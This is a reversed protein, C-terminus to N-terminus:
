IRELIYKLFSYCVRYSIWENILFTDRCAFVIRTFFLPFYKTTNFNSRLILCCNFCCHEVLWNCSYKINLYSFIIFFSNISFTEGGQVFTFSIITMPHSQYSVSYIAFVEPFQFIAHSSTPSLISIHTDLSWSTSISKTSDLWLKIIWKISLFYFKILVSLTLFINKKVIMLFYIFPCKILGITLNTYSICEFYKILTEMNEKQRERVWIRM